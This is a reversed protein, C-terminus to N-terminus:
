RGYRNSREYKRDVTNYHQYLGGKTEYVLKLGEEDTIDVIPKVYKESNSKKLKTM